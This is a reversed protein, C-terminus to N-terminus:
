AAATQNAPRSRPRNWPMTKLLRAMGCFGTIGAFMLGAGVFGSLILFWPDVLAALLVGLLVLGGAAIQVQRMLDIPQRRDLLTPLGAAKWAQMGGDLVAVDPAGCALLRDGANATRNGSQCHFILIKGAAATLTEGSLKALPVLAAGPIHERAYEMPERVDVLLAGGADLLRKAEAPKLSRIAPM